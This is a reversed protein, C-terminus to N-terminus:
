CPNGNLLSRFPGDLRRLVIGIAGFVEGVVQRTALHNIHHETIGEGLDAQNPQHFRRNLGRRLWGFKAAGTLGEM